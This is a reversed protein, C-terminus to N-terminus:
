KEIPNPKYEKITANVVYISNSDDKELKCIHMHTDCM